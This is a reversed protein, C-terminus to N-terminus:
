IGWSLLSDAGGNSLWHSPMDQDGAPIAALMMEEHNGMLNIFSNAPVPPGNILWDIVQASDSGRDIYDGLHILSTHSIPREALDQAIMEHLTVLRDLCGHVDGIAYIRQGPPLQAPATTLVIM